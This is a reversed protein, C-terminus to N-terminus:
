GAAADGSITFSSFVAFPVYYPHKGGICYRCSAQRGGAASTYYTRVVLGPNCERCMESPRAVCVWRTVVRVKCLGKYYVDLALLPWRIPM